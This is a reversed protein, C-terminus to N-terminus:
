CCSCIWEEKTTMGKNKKYKRITIQEEKTIKKVRKKKPGFIRKFLGEKRPEEPITEKAEKVEKPEEKLEKKPPEKVEPKKAERIKQKVILEQTIREAERRKEEEARKIALEKEEDEKFALNMANLDEGSYIHKYM